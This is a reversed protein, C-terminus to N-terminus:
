AQRWVEDIEFQVDKTRTVKFLSVMANESTYVSHLGYALLDLYEIGICPEDQDAGDTADTSDTNDTNLYEAGPGGPGVGIARLLQAPDGTVDQDDWGEACLRSQGPVHALYKGYTEASYMECVATIRAESHAKVQADFADELNTSLIGDEGFAPDNIQVINGWCGVAVYDLDGIDRPHDIDRRPLPDLEEAVAAVTSLEAVVARARVPDHAPVHHIVRQDYPTPYPPHIRTIQLTSQRWAIQPNPSM